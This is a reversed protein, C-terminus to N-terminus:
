TNHTIHEIVKGLEFIRDERMWPGMIQLGVPLGDALGCPVSMAPIGALNAPATFIDSLYMQVPDKTKEGFKFAVTPATPAILLDVKEFVKRFDERILWRAKQAKKYYDDYHGESLVYSGLMIRRRVEDGLYERRTKLYADLLSSDNVKEGYRVGDYRSMNASVEAPMLVYYASLAYSTHPLRVKEIEVKSKLNDVASKLCDEVGKEMGEAFYEEPVGVRLDQVKYKTSQVKADISTADFKDKGKIVDFVFEADEVTKSNVGIVDLSSGMAILGHRSVSGYTPKLGVAGCFSAPQRVSGSTESGLAYFCESAAVSAASGGSSGGPVRNLDLPNKTLKFASNETSAGMAFEDLNTKGIIVGGAEKIKKVATADYPATYNELIKSGATCKVDKVLINDKISCPIGELIGIEEGKEIKEDVNKAQELALKKTVELFAYIDKEKKEIIDLFHQTFETCSVARSTLLEHAKKITLHSLDM